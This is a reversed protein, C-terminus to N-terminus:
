GVRLGEGDLPPILPPPIKPINWTFRPGLPWVFFGVKRGPKEFEAIRFGCGGSSGGFLGSGSFAFGFAFLLRLAKLISLGPGLAPSKTLKSERPVSPDLEM